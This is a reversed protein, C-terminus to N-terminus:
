VTLADRIARLAKPLANRIDPQINFGNPAEAEEVIEDTSIYRELEAVAQLTDPRASLNAQVAKLLIIAADGDPDKMARIGQEIGKLDFLVKSRAATWQALAAALKNDPSNPSVTSQAQIGGVMKELVELEVLAQEFNKDRAFGAIRAALPKVEVSSPTGSALVLDLDPKLAKFRAIFKAAIEGAAANPVATPSQALLKEISDLLQNAREFDKKRAFLAAESLQLKITPDAGPKAIAADIAPKISKLRAVFQATAEDPAPTPQTSATASPSAATVPPEDGDLVPVISDVIEFVPKCKIGASEDLFNKLVSNKVPESDFGDARALMFRLAVGSGDVVGFYFQGKGAEKAEKKRGEINGKKYVVLSVVNPGKCIMAFNRPKGKKVEDLYDISEPSIPGGQSDKAM